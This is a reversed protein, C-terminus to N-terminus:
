AGPLRCYRQRRHRDLELVQLVPMDLNAAHIYRFMRNIQIVLYILSHRAVM